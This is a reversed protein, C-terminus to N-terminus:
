ADEPLNLMFALLAIDNASIIPIDALDIKRHPETVDEDQLLKLDDLFAGLSEPPVQYGDNGDKGIKVGYKKVILEVRQKEYSVLDPKVASINRSVRYAINPKLPQATLRDFAELTKQASGTEDILTSIKM